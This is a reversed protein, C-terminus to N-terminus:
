PGSGLPPIRGEHAIVHEVCVTYPRPYKARVSRGLAYIEHKGLETVTECFDFHATQRVLTPRSRIYWNNDLQERRRVKFNCNEHVRYYYLKERIFCVKEPGALEAMPLYLALDGAARFYDGHADRFTDDNLLNFIYGKFSRLHSFRWSQRRVPVTTLIDGGFSYNQGQIDEDTYVLDFGQCHKEWLKELCNPRIWDDGDLIAVVDSSGLDLSRIAALTNGMLYRREPSTRLRIRPDDLYSGVREVTADTSADSAVLATWTTFTQVLLSDLCQNIYQECNYCPIVILLRTPHLNSKITDPRIRM